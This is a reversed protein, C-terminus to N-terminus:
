RTRFMVEFGPLDERENPGEDSDIVTNLSWRVRPVAHNELLPILPCGNMGITRHMEYTHLFNQLTSGIYPSQDLNRMYPAYEWHLMNPAWETCIPFMYPPIALLDELMNTNRWFNRVREKLARKERKTWKRNRRRPTMGGEVVWDNVWQADINITAPRPDINITEPVLRNRWAWSEGGRFYKKILTEAGCGGAGGVAPFNTLELNLANIGKWDRREEESMRGPKEKKCRQRLSKKSRTQHVKLWTPMDSDTSSSILDPMDPDIDEDAENTEARSSILEPMDPDTDEDAENTEAQPPRNSATPTADGRARPPAGRPQKLPPEAGRSAAVAANNRNTPFPPPVTNAAVAAPPPMNYFSAM